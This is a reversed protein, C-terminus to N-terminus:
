LLAMGILGLVLLLVLVGLIRKETATVRFPM